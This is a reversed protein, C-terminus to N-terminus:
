CGKHLEQKAEKREMGPDTGKLALGVDGTSTQSM